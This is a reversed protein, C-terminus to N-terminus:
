RKAHKRLQIAHRTQKKNKKNLKHPTLLQKALWNACRLVGKM